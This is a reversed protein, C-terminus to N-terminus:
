AILSYGILGFVVVAFMILVMSMVIGLVRGIQALQRNEPPRREADIARIERTGMAWAFPAVLPFVCIAIVGLAM